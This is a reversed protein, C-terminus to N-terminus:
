MMCAGICSVVIIFIFIVLVVLHFFNGIKDVSDGKEKSSLKFVWGVGILIILFWFM